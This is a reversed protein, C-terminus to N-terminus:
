VTKEGQLECVLQTPKARDKSWQGVEKLCTIEVSVALVELLFFKM